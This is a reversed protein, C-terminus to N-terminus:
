ELRDRATCLEYEITVSDTQVDALWARTFGPAQNQMVFGMTAELHHMSAGAGRPPEFPVDALSQFLTHKPEFPDITGTAFWNIANSEGANEGGPTLKLGDGGHTAYMDYRHDVAVLIEGTTFKVSHDIGLTITGGESCPDPPPPEPPPVLKQPDFDFTTFVTAAFADAASLDILVLGELVDDTRTTLKFHGSLQVDSPIATPCDDCDSTVVVTEIFGSDLPYEFDVGRTELGPVDLSMSVTVTAAALELTLTLDGLADQVQLDTRTVLAAECVGAVCYRPGDVIPPPPEVEDTGSCGALALCV